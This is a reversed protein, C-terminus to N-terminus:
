GGNIQLPHQLVMEVKTGVPLSIEDGRTALARGLGLGGGVFALKIGPGGAGLLGLVTGPLAGVVVGRIDHDIQDVPEITGEADVKRNHSSGPLGQMTGTIPLVHNDAFILNTFCVRLQARGRARGPRREKVVSGTVRTHEPIVIRNNAIVPMATQLYAASGETASTTHLPSVLELLIHTGAPVVVPQNTRDMQAFGRCHMLLLAAAILRTCRM